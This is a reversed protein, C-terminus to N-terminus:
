LEHLFDRVAREHLRALLTALVPLAREIMETIREPEMDALKNTLLEAETRVLADICAKYMGIDAPSFGLDEAFGLQSLESWCDLIWLDERDIRMKGKDDLSGRVLGAQVLEDIDESHAGSRKSATIAAVTPRQRRPKSQSSFKRRVDALVRRQAPSFGRDRSDLAARIAELPLFEEERMRRILLIRAVHDETYEASTQGHKIGPQVLGKKIYFHIAQRTMGTKECLQKMRYNPVISPDRLAESVTLYLKVTPTQAGTSPRRGGAGSDAEM